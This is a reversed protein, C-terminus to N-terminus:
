TDYEAGPHETLEPVVRVAEGVSLRASVIGSGGRQGDCRALLASHKGTVHAVAVEIVGDVLPGEGRQCFARAGSREVVLVAGGSVQVM